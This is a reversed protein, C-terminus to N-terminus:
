LLTNKRDMIRIKNYIWNDFGTNGFLFFVGYGKSFDRDFTKSFLSKYYFSGIDM